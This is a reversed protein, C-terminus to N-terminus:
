WDGGGAGSDLLSCVGDGAHGRQPVPEDGADQGRHVARDLGAGPRRLDGAIGVDAEVAHAKGQRM